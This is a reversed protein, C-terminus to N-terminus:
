DSYLEEFILGTLNNEKYLGYFEDEKDKVGSYTFIDVKCTEPIKFISSEVKVRNPHFGYKLIRGKTGDDYYDWESTEYNLGSVCDLVNLMYLRKGNELEIPLIEGCMEFITRCIELAHGDFVLIGSLMTTYFNKEKIKPNFIYYKPLIWKELKSECQFIRQGIEYEKENDVPLTVQINNADSKVRYIKM